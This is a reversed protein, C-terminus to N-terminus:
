CRLSRRQSIEVIRTSITDLHRTQRLAYNEAPLVAVDGFHRSVYRLSPAIGEVKVMVIFGKRIYDCCLPDILTIKPM